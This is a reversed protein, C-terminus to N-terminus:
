QSSFHWAHPAILSTHCVEHLRVAGRQLSSDPDDHWGRPEADQDESFIIVFIKETLHGLAALDSILLLHHRWDRSARKVIVYTINAM